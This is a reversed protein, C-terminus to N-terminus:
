FPYVVVEGNNELKIGYEPNIKQRMSIGASPIDIIEGNPLANGREDVICLIINGNSQDFLKLFRRRKKPEYVELM